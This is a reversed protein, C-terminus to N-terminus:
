HGCVDKGQIILGSICYAYRFSGLPAEMGNSTNGKTIKLQDDGAEEAAGFNPVNDMVKCDFDVEEESIGMDTAYEHRITKIYAKPYFLVSLPLVPPAYGNVWSRLFYVRNKLDEVWSSLSRSDLSHCARRWSEPLGNAAVVQIFEIMELSLHGRGGIADLSRRLWRHALDLVNQCKWIERRLFTAMPGTEPTVFSRLSDASELFATKTPHSHNEQEQLSRGKCQTGDERHMCATTSKWGPIESKLNETKHENLASGTLHIEKIQDQPSYHREKNINTVGYSQSEPIMSDKEEHGAANTESAVDTERSDKGDFNLVSRQEQSDELHSSDCVTTSKEVLGEMNMELINTNEVDAILAGYVNSKQELIGDCKEIEKTIQMPITNQLHLMKHRAIVWPCTWTTRGNTSCIKNLNLLLTQSENQQRLISASEHLGLNEM